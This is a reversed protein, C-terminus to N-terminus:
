SAARKNKFEPSLHYDPFVVPLMAKDKESFIEIKRKKMRKSPEPGKWQELEKKVHNTRYNELM